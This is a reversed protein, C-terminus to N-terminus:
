HCSGRANSEQGAAGQSVCGSRSPREAIDMGDEEQSITMTFKM